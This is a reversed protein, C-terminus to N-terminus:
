PATGRVSDAPAATRFADTAVLVVMAVATWAVLPAEPFRALAVGSFGWVVAAAVWANKLRRFTFIGAVAGAVVVLAAWIEPAVPGGDWGLAVLLVTANVLTAVLIWGLYLGFAARALTLIRRRSGSAGRVVLRANLVLLTVLLGAMILLSLGVRLHHWALLWGGNLVSSLAFAPAVRRALGAAVPLFQEVCWGAVLLYILGWISFTVGAPVVLNPYLASLEGTTRGGLPLWNALANLALAGLFAATAVLRWTLGGPGEEEAEPLTSASSLLRM